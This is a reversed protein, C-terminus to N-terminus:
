CVSTFVYQHTWEKHTSSSPPLTTVYPPKQCNPSTSCRAAVHVRCSVTPQYLQSLTHSLCQLSVQHRNVNQRQNRTQMLKGHVTLLVTTNLTQPKSSQNKFPAM